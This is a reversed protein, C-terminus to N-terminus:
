QAISSRFEIQESMSPLPHIYSWFLPNQRRHLRRRKKDVPNSAFGGFIGEGPSKPSSQRVFNIVFYSIRKFLTKSLKSTLFFHDNLSMALITGNYDPFIPTYFCTCMIAVILSM